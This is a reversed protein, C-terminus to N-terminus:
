RQAAAIRRAMFERLLPIRAKRLFELARDPAAVAMPEVAYWIMLPLNRDEADEAHAALGELVDWREAPPLRRCGAALYLRVVPSPDSRAMEAYKAKAGPAAKGDELDLQIAWARVYEEPSGLQALLLADDAGGTVHLAWLARLKRTVDPHDELIRV